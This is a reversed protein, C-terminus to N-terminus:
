SSPLPKQKNINITQKTSVSASFVTTIIYADAMHQINKNVQWKNPYIYENMCTSFPGFNSKWAFNIGMLRMFKDNKITITQRIILRHHHHNCFINQILFPLSLFLLMDNHLLWSVSENHPRIKNKNDKSVVSPIMSWWRWSQTRDLNNNLDDYIIM